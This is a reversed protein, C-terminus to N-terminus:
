FAHRIGIDVGTSRQNAATTAAGLATTAGGANSVRALTTYLATRKSLDYVYGVALKRSSPKAAANTSYRSYSGKLTGNGLPATVGLLHGRGDPAAGDIRDRQVQLLVKAVGFEWSGAVSSTHQSGTAFKIRTTSAAINFPGQAYGLRVGTGTGDDAVNSANEGLFHQLQGYLGGLGAPLHYGISNSARSSNSGLVNLTSILSTGVGVNAFPDSGVTNWFQPTYDRGLRIEGWRASLSVTSRRNFLLGQRGAVAAGTGSPQNNTSSAVGTGDDVNVHAELWFSASMGGGLDETGRFGLRSSSNGGSTLSTRDALSGRGLTLGADAVGFLTVSSQAFAGVSTTLALTAALTLKKM